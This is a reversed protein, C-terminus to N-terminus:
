PELGLAARLMTETARLLRERARPAEIARALAVAGACSAFVFTAIERKSLGAVEPFRGEIRGLFAATRVGFGRQFEAGGRAVEPLLVTMPCAAALSPDDNQRLYNRILARLWARDDDTAPLSALLREMSRELGFLLTERALEHKSAFHAYFGGVTLDAERMVAEVSAGDIGQVKMVRDAAALIRERTVGKHESSYRAMIDM